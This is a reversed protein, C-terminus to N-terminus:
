GIQLGIKECGNSWGCFFEILIGWFISKKFCGSFGRVYVRGSGWRVVGGFISVSVEGKEM